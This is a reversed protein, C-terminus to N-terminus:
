FIAANGAGTQRLTSLDIMFQTLSTPGIPAQPALTWNSGQNFTARAEVAHNLILFFIGSWQNQFVGTRESRMGVAPDALLVRGDELGTIVVFHHYGRENILVIAPVGVEALKSLPARFGGSPLGQRALYEKMDLLSFGYQEILAKDGHTVMSRFVTMEDVPMNYSYTLLTALAASGCSYDFRQPIVASFRRSQFSQVPLTPSSLGPLGNIAGSIQLQAAGAPGSFGAVAAFAAAMVVVRGAIKRM